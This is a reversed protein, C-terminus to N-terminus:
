KPKHECCNGNNEDNKPKETHNTYIRDTAKDMNEEHNRDNEKQDANDTSLIWNLLYNNHFVIVVTATACICYEENNYNDDENGSSHPPVIAAAAAAIVAATIDVEM